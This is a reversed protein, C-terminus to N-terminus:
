GAKTRRCWCSPRFARRPVGADWPDHYDRAFSNAHGRTQRLGEIRAARERAEAPEDTHWALPRGPLDPDWATVDDVPVRKGPYVEITAVDSGPDADNGGSDHGAASLGGGREPATSEDHPADPAGQPSRTDETRDATAIKTVHTSCIPPDTGPITRKRCGEWACAPLYEADAREAAALRRRRKKPSGVM